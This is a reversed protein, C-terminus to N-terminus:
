FMLCPVESTDSFRGGPPPSPAGSSDAVMTIATQVSVMDLGTQLGHGGVSSSLSGLRLSSSDKTSGSDQSRQNSVASSALTFDVDSGLSSSKELSMGDGTLFTNSEDKKPMTVPHMSADILTDTKQDTGKAESENSLNELNQFKLDMVDVDLKGEMSVKQCGPGVRVSDDRGCEDSVESTRKQDMSKMTMRNESMIGQLHPKTTRDKMKDPDLLTMGMVSRGSRAKLVSIESESTKGKTLKKRLNMPETPLQSKLESVYKQTPQKKTLPNAM